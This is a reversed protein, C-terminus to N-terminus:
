ASPPALQQLWSTYWYPSLFSGLLAASIDDLASTVAPTQQMRQSQFRNPTQSKAFVTSKRVPNWPPDPPSHPPPPESYLASWRHLQCVDLWVEATERSNRGTFIFSLVRSIHKKLIKLIGIRNRYTPGEGQSNRLKLAELCQTLRHCSDKGLSLVSPQGM